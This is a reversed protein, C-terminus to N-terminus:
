SLISVTHDTAKTFAHVIKGSADIHRITLKSDTAELHTFGYVKEAFPGRKAEDIKLNYLDAGGAGSCVFSTPHGEFELHQLDHDHGALYLHANNKRLLPEWEKILVPHDGHPGNSFIPHHGLVVLFPAPNPKAIEAAFWTLQDAQAAAPMTFFGNSNRTGRDVNSDLAIIKLLPKKAPLHFSYYLAPQTWRTHGRKAYALEADLKIVSPPMAQYDHNGMISFAPGPFATAPYMDEFQSKWRPDDAGGPLPGYWSDGLLFLAETQLDNATAYTQMAQAVSRQGAPDEWGWDGVILIHRAKADPALSFASPTGLTALASFAFSQRLFDRRNLQLKLHSM